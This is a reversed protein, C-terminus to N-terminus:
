VFLGTFFILAGAVGFGMIAISIISLFYIPKSAVTGVDTGTDECIDNYVKKLVFQYICLGPFILFNMTVISAEIDSANHFTKLYENNYSYIIVITPLLLLVSTM